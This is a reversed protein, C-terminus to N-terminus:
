LAGLGGSIKCALLSYFEWNKNSGNQGFKRGFAKLYGIKDSKRILGLITFFPYTKKEKKANGCLPSKTPQRKPQRRM